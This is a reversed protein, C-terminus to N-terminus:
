EVVVFVLIVIGHRHITGRPQQRSADLNISAAAAAASRVVCVRGLLRARTHAPQDQARPSSARYVLRRFQRAFVTCSPPKLRADLSFLSPDSQDFDHPFTIEKSPRILSCVLEDLATLAATAIEIDPCGMFTVLNQPAIATFATFAFM